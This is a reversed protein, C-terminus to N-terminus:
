VFRDGVRLMERQAFSSASEPDHGPRQLKVVGFVTDDACLVALKGQRMGLYTGIEGSTYKEWGLPIGSWIKVPRRNCHCHLGGPTFARMRNFVGEADMSWPVKRYRKGMRPTKTAIRHNQRRGKPLGKKRDMKKIAQTTVDKTIKLVRPMVLRYTEKKGLSDEEQVVIDGAWPEEDVLYATSGIRNYGDAILARVAHAGRYKPLTSPHIGIAGREARTVLEMPLPRGFDSVVLLDPEIQAIREHLSDEMARRSRVRPIDRARAWEVVEHHEEQEDFGDLPRIGAEPRSVILEPVLGLEELAELSAVASAHTGFFVVKKLHKM